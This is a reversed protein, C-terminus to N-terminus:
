RRGEQGNQGGDAEPAKLKAPQPDDKCEPCTTSNQGAGRPTMFFGECAIRKKVTNMSRIPNPMTSGNSGTYLLLNPADPKMTPPNIADYESICIRKAGSHPAHLSRTPR